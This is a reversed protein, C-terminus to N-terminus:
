AMNYGWHLWILKWGRDWPLTNAAEREGIGIGFIWHALLGQSRPQNTKLAPYGILRLGKGARLLTRRGKVNNECDNIWIYLYLKKLAKM